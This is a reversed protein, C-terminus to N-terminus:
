GSKRDRQSINLYRECLTSQNSEVIDYEVGVVKVIYYVSLLKPSYLKVLEPQSTLIFGDRLQHWFLGNNPLEVLSM